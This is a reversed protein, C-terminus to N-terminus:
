FHNRKQLSHHKLKAGLYPLNLFALVRLSVEKEGQHGFSSERIIEGYRTHQHRLHRFKARVM